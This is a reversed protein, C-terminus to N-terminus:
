HNLKDYMFPSHCFCRVDSMFCFDHASYIDRWLLFFHIFKILQIIAYIVTFLWILYFFKNNLSHYSERLPLFTTSFPQIRHLYHRQRFRSFSTLFLEDAMKSIRLFILIEEVELFAIFIVLNTLFTSITIIKKKAM